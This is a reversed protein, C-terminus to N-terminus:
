RGTSIPPAIALSRTTSTKPVQTAFIMGLGYKRAQAVLAIQFAWTAVIAREFEVRVAVRHQRIAEASLHLGWVDIISDPWSEGIM